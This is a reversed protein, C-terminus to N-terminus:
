STLGRMPRAARRPFLWIRVSWLAAPHRGRKGRAAGRARRRACRAPRRPAARLPQRQDGGPGPRLRRAGPRQHRLRGAAGRVGFTLRRNAATNAVATVLLALANAWQASLRAARAPVARPLRPHQGGRDPRLARAPRDPRARPARRADPLALRGRRCRRALLRAIGKLDALATAVIDVRSDPDDVWDVPVEHIRLGAREALVLLETDFFWGHGRGAAPARSGPRRPHGQLRVPRRLLARRLVAHAAAPQLLALHVRAQRRAGRARRARPAHRHRRRLSGVRAPRRAAAAGALDTSLDVDMYALVAADSASWVARLARGRGKEDLHVARVGPLTRPSRRAIPWTGDISANDAITSRFTFPLSASLYAHLRM